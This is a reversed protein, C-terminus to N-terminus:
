TGKQAVRLLGDLRDAASRQIEPLVHAYVDATTSITSHGLQEQILKLNEGQALLLTACGHRLDHFRMRPVGARKLVDQFRHTVNKPDLPTGRLSAFVLGWEEWDAGAALRDQLQCIRRERLAAVVFGPLPLARRSKDTKLERLELVGAVRQLQM